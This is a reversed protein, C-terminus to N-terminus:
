VDSSPRGIIINSGDPVRICAATHNPSVASAVPVSSRCEDMVLPCRTGFVCGTPLNLPSPQEGQIVHRRLVAGPDPPLAASLLSQTYPHEPKELVSTAPGEEVINGLYMVGVRDCMKAVAEVDHSILLYTLGLVKQLDHLLSLIGARVSLDLSSTPEDLVVLKPNAAIARAIGVRQLQGGSLQHPFRELYRDDLQVLRLLEEVRQAREERGMTTQLKLPEEMSDAIRMRPNLSESPDQFVIQFDRRATRLARGRLEVVNVGDMLISGATPETLRVICKAATSKGSGSEGVLGFTTGRDIRFSINNVAKIPESTGRVQYHKTLAEVVVDVSM